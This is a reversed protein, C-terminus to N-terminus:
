TLAYGECDLSNDNFVHANASVTLGKRVFTAVGNLGRGQICIRTNHAMNSLINNDLLQKHFIMLIKRFLSSRHSFSTVPPILYFSNFHTLVSLQAQNGSSNGSKETRVPLAPCAWFTDYGSDKAGIERAKSEIDLATM